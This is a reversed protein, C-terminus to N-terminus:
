ESEGPSLLWASQMKRNVTTGSLGLSKMLVEKPMNMASALEGVYRAPVGSRILHNKGTFDMKSWALFQGTKVTRFVSTM